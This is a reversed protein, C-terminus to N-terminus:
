HIVAEDHDAEHNRRTYEEHCVPPEHDPILPLSDFAVLGDVRLDAGGADGSVRNRDDRVAIGDVPERGRAFVHKRSRAPLSSRRYGLDDIAVSLALRDRGIVVGAVGGAGEEDLLREGRRREEREDDSDPEDKKPEIM